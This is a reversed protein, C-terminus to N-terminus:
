VGIEVGEESRVDTKSTFSFERPDEIERLLPHPPVGCDKSAIVPIGKALARLALRPQHEVWAPLVLAESCDLDSLRGEKFFEAMGEERAGGLVILQFDGKGMAAQLEYIGKRGLPSCPLFYQGNVVEGTRTEEVPMKWDLLWSRHGFHAAIARHPTILKGALALAESEARVLEPDPRFDGLTSSQPHREAAQNLRKLLEELPWRQMLVDFTRGGLVGLKWLHPLLNQAVVLHRCEPSVGAAYSRALEEDGKLLAAQRVAGQAPLRRQRFSRWLVPGTAHHVISGKPPSWAYNPKKWQHGDLPSFWHDGERSHGGCWEDFEPWRADLLFGSHGLAPAHKATASPHRFCAVQDCTLCDGTPSERSVREPEPKTAEAKGRDAKIRVTLDTADLQVELRWSFDARFRLDVYNWFVTADLNQEGMSGPVLRSHAHREVIELGAKLAAQYLLGTIQCLGGGINPVMCGERLERGTTFGRSKTTRGLQRWFSFVEGAPIELGHLLRASLRLNEVKGATLPFEAASLQSWLPAKVEGLVRADRLESGAEHRPPRNGWEILMRRGRFVAAKLGFVMGQWRGPLESESRQTTEM